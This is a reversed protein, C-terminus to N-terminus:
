WFDGDLGLKPPSLQEWLSGALGGSGIRRYLKIAWSGWQVINRNPPM